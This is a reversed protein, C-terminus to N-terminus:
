DEFFDDPSAFSPRADSQTLLKRRVLADKAVQERPKASPERSAICEFFDVTQEYTPRAPLIDATAFQKPQREDACYAFAQRKQLLRIEIQALHKLEELSYVGGPLDELIPVLAEHKGTSVARSYGGSSGYSSVSSEGQINIPTAGEFDALSIGINTGRTAGFSDAAFQGFAEGESILWERSYGVVTPKILV